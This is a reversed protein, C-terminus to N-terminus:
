SAGDGEEPRTFDFSVCYGARWLPYEVDCRHGVYEDPELGVREFLHRTLDPMRPWAAPAAGRLGTGLLQLPPAEAFRTSWREGAHQAFDPGWLHADLSPLSARALDKHLYVDFLLHRCPFNVLAWVEELPPSQRLPHPITSRAALMLDVPRGRTPAREDISQVLFEDPQRATVLPPPSSTFAPMVVTGGRVSVEANELTDFPGGGSGPGGDAPRTFNHVVLPMADARAVHGVLGNARFVEVTDPDTPSPRYAYVAVWCASSRGTLETAAEFLRMRASLAASEATSRGTRLAGGVGGPASIELRRTLRTLSGGLETILEQYRDVAADLADLAGRDPIPRLAGAAEVLRALGRVGPLRAFLDPGRYPHSVAHVARQCTTRDVGLHRALGSANRATAPLATLFASIEAHLRRAVRDARAWEQATLPERGVQGLGTTATALREQPETTSGEHSPRSM